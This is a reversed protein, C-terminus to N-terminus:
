GGMMRLAMADLEAYSPESASRQRRRKQAERNITRRREMHESNWRKSKSVAYQLYHQKCTTGVIPLMGDKTRRRGNRHKWVPAGCWCIRTAKISPRELGMKRVVVRAWYPSAGFCQGIKALTLGSEFLERFKLPSFRIETAM